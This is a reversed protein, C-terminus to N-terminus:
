FKCIHKMFFDRKTEVYYNSKLLQNRLHAHLNPKVSKLLYNSFIQLHFHFFLSVSYCPSATLFSRRVPTEGYLFGEGYLIKATHFKRQIYKKDGTLDISM